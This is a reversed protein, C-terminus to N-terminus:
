VNAGEKRIGVLMKVVAAKAVHISKGIAEQTAGRRSLELAVLHQLLEIVKDLKQEVPDRKGTM